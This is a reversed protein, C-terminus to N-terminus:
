RNLGSRLSELSGIQNSNEIWNRLSPILYSRLQGTFQRGVNAAAESRALGEAIEIATYLAEEIQDLADLSDVVDSNDYADYENTDDAEVQIEKYVEDENLLKLDKRISEALNEKSM